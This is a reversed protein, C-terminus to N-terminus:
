SVYMSWANRRDLPSKGPTKFIDYRAGNGHGHLFSDVKRRSRSRRRAGRAGDREGSARESTRLIDPTVM